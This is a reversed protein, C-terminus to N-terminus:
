ILQTTMIFIDPQFTSAPAEMLQLIDFQVIGNPGGRTGRISSIKFQCPGLVSSWDRLSPLSAGFLVISVGENPALSTLGFIYNLPGM